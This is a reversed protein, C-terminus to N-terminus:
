KNPVPREVHDIVIIGHQTKVPEFRLGLQQEVARFLEPAPPDDPQAQPDDPLELHINYRDSEPLGTRDVVHRDLRLVTILIEREMGGLDLIRASESRDRRVMGCQPKCEADAAIPRIKLGGKAVTMAYAPIDEVDRHTKLQLRDELFARLMPGMLTRRDAAGGAKAELTYKETRLWAPGGKVRPTDERPPGYENLLPEGFFVYARDIMSQVTM